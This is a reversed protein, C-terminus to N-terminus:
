KASLAENIKSQTIDQSPRPANNDFIKGDKGIIIYQPVGDINFARGVPSKFGGASLVHVGEVHDEAIAKKWLDARDDISVYLFVVDTNEKFKAHLKPSGNKMEYRCPSCWSAWFDMYIVKGAFDKLTVDKGQQDKLIFYPPTKGVSTKGLNSYATEVEKANKPTAYKALYEEMLPKFVEVDKATNFGAKLIAALAESRVRGKYAKEVLRYDLKAGEERSIPTDITGKNFLEKYRLFVPYSYAMFQLYAKNDLLQDDMPIDKDLGWYDDPISASLKRGLYGKCFLPVTLEAGLKKYILAMSQEKYFTPSVKAKSSKLNTIAQQGLKTFMQLLENATVNKWDLKEFAIENAKAEQYMVEAKGAGKGSFKATKGFDTEIKVGDGPEAYFSIQWKKPNDIGMRLDAPFKGNFRLVFQGKANPKAFYTDKKAPDLVWMSDAKVTSQQITITVGADKKQGFSMATSLCLM